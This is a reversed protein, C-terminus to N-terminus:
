AVRQAVDEEGAFSVMVGFADNIANASMASVEMIEDRDLASATCDRVRASSHRLESASVDASRFPLTTSTWKQVYEHMLQIRM